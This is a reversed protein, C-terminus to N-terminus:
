ASSDGSPAAVGMNSASNLKFTAYNLLGVLSEDGSNIASPLLKDIDRQLASREAPSPVHAESLQVNHDTKTTIGKQESYHVSRDSYTPYLISIIKCIILYIQSRLALLPDDTSRALALSRKAYLRAWGARQLTAYAGGLTSNVAKSYESCILAMLNRGVVDNMYKTAWNMEPREELMAHYIIVHEPTFGSLDMTDEGSPNAVLKAGACFLQEFLLRANRASIGNSCYYLHKDRAFQPLTSSSEGCYVSEMWESATSLLQSWQVLNAISVPRYAVLLSTEPIGPLLHNLLSSATSLVWTIDSSPESLRLSSDFLVFIIPSQSAESSDSRRPEIAGEM